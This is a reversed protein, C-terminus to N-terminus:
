PAERGLGSLAIRLVVAYAADADLDTTDVRSADAAPAMPSVDRTADRADREKMEQLVAAYIVSEGRERLENWRRRARIEVDADVFLKVEADPCIVTGIDRGDLVAGARGGPPAGAFRRQHDLLAQRVAPIAAVKSAAQGIEDDSLRPDALTTLDLALAAREAAAPDGLDAGADLVDRGVARYLKGTDLHAFDLAEALRRALTGKGSAAPGDIAIVPM